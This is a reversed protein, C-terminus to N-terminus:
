TRTHKYTHSQQKHKKFIKIANEIDKYSSMGTSIFTYKGQKAIADLLNLDVIM